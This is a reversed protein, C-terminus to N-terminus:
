KLDLRSILSSTRNKEFHRTNFNTDCECHLHNAKIVLILIEGYSNILQSDDISINMFEILNNVIKLYNSIFFNM